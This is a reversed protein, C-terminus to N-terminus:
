KGAHIHFKGNQITDWYSYCGDYAPVTLSLRLVYCKYIAFLVCM